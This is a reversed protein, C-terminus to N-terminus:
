IRIKKGFKKALKMMQQQSLQGEQMNKAGGKAFEKLIKFQKVMARIDSTSTGSGHAIRQMRSTQKELLEPNEKEELTMSNIAHQWKKIKEEQIGLLQEPVKVKSFGPIMSTLKSFSGMNTMAKIQEQFDAMTFKGQLLKEELKKQDKETIVSRVKELLTELDGMGLLRSIFSKPSFSEIDNIKEGTTIFFVPAKAENCATLAGGGNASSDMRTVIVGNINCTEKFKSALQKATQGIDAPIILISYDPKIENHINKIESILDANLTDRGATDIIIIDHDKVKNKANKWIKIPNKENKETYFYLNNQKSLQEIQESAAPRHTDLGIIISNHGRKNFYLALKASTTTKGSGYLGLLLIKTQKKLTIEQKQKGLMEELCDHLLKILLEKKEIGKINQKGLARLKDSIDKVLKVNVDAELLSRQLDKVIEDILKTDVFVVSAIKDFNKKLVNSFKELM